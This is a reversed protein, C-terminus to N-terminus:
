YKDQSSNKLQETPLPDIPDVEHKFAYAKNTVLVTLGIVGIIIFIAVTLIVGMYLCRMENHEYDEVRQKGFTFYCVKKSM